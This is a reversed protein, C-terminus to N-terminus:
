ILAPLRFFFPGGALAPAPQTSSCHTQRGGERLGAGRSGRLNMKAAAGDGQGAGAPGRARIGGEKQGAGERGQQLGVAAQSSSNQLDCGLTRLM